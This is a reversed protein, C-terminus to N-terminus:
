FIIKQDQKETAEYPNTEYVFIPHPPYFEQPETGQFYFGALPTEGQYTSNIYLLVVMSGGVCRERLFHFGAILVINIKGLDKM